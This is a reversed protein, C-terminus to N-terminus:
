CGIASGGVVDVAGVAEGDVAGYEGYGLRVFSDFEVFEVLLHEILEVLVEKGSDLVVSVGALSDEECGRGICGLGPQPLDVRALERTALLWRARPSDRPRM